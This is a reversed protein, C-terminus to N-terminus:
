YVKNFPKWKNITQNSILTLIRLLNTNAGTGSLKDFINGAHTNM